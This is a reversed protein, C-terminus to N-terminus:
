ALIQLSHHDLNYIVQTNLSFLSLTYSILVAATEPKASSPVPLTNIEATIKSGAISALKEVVYSKSLNLFFLFDQSPASIYPFFYNTRSHPINTKDM